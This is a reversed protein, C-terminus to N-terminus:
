GSTPTKELGGTRRHVEKRGDGEISKMELGGTRRHVFGQRVKGFFWKELGGTRRHVVKLITNNAGNM